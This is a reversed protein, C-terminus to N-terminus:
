SLMEVFADVDTTPEQCVYNECVYATTSNDILSKNALLPLTAADLSESLAVIKNPLYMGHLAALMAGTKADERNGVIAIEKPTSLLFALECLLQGSGSPMVDMQHFYLKLTNVAKDHFEPKDLHKALRLLSHVAMSAGAPTAGDYASKSQVILSEHAKGTFFFGEGNDDAFQEIMINALREAETLWKADFSAEYLAVLGAIFYSYDELYANLHSKGERYTRLLLGDEQSLTTLVFEASKECATLYELKGTLQYGMAMGRIMIGNWSTLIKDDLGPKIRKERETFLKQKCDTLLTDLAAQDMGLKRAFVDSPTQIHLISEGEFNGHPTIDYFECFIETNEEGIIDEVESPEWVFFKGEVGESDADQTSYFGGNEADYMERLVYDLTETAIDLYFSNQTAQYAEFYAVVLQANDYLMKEFHPVLWRADTSYRHFGGGLQDYMGGRAMKQLTLEVMELANVNGSHHWYRLLFPIGMSPPFKPANGFGGYHSDFQSRYHQFAKTMLEETLENEQSTVLNSMQNLQATIQDAQELVQDNKDNYAEIVAYMVKPFGPRGYRDEPPYYTGGFFPKLDPTLFVTMPWGGQRTLIQVANMYIEDLDPREERDVKINVFLQNMIAAIDENEFSEREMVHCWHCASYGISLLIPKQEHKARELAEEGWPYWDVPNHAHQLLYPSTEHILRNTHKPSDNM